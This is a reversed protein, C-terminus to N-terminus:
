TMDKTLYNEILPWLQETAEPKFAGLHGIRAMGVSAPATIHLRSPANPLAALLKRTCQETIAEDDTFSLARVSFRASALSPKIQDPEAGWAFEPHRCWRSWQRMVPAPLDGVMGLRAGPFYGFLPISLPGALHFMLPAKLRSPPAWDRWYGSGAAVSVAHSILAQTRPLTMAAHHMGLSHGVLSVTGSPDVASLHDVAAAFDQRAWTLMDATLGRLSHRHQPLRSAGMGRVDFTMVRCGRQALWSAFRQYFRQPVGLGGAVLVSARSRGPPEFNMGALPTGDTTHIVYPTPVTTAVAVSM